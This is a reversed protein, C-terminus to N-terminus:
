LSRRAPARRFVPRASATHTPSPRSSPTGTTIPARSNPNMPPLMPDTTPSFIARAASRAAERRAGKITQEAEPPALICSPIKESMCIALVAAATARSWSAPTGYKETRVSGVNPPTVAEKAISPSTIRASGRASMPKAPGRTISCVILFCSGSPNWRASNRWSCPSTSM